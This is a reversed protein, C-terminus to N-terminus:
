DLISYVEEGPPQHSGSNPRDGSGQGRSSHLEPSQSSLPPSVERNSPPTPERPERAHHQQSMTMHSNQAARSSPSGGGGGGVGGSVATGSMPLPNQQRLMHPRQVSNSPPSPVPAGKPPRYMPTPPVRAQPRGHSPPMRPPSMDQHNRPSPGAAADEFEMHGSAAKNPPQLHYSSHPMNGNM